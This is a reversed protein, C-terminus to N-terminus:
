DTIQKRYNAPSTGFYKKFLRSFYYQDDYGVSKAISTISEDGKELLERAKNLRLNILFSLPSEGFESKYIKSLYSSNLYMTGAIKELSISRQYNDCLYNRLNEVLHKQETKEFIIDYSDNPVHTYHSRLALVILRIAISKLSLDFCLKRCQQESAAEEYCRDFEEQMEGLESLAYAAPSVLHDPPLGKININDFALHFETITSNGRLQKEHYVGPNIMLISGKQVNQTNGEIWYSCSGSIDMVFTIVPFPHFHRSLNTKLDYNELSLYFIRPNFNDPNISINIM